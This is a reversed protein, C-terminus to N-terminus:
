IIHRVEHEITWFEYTLEAKSRNAEDLIQKYFDVAEREGKLNVELIEKVTKAPYTKALSMSPVGGLYNGILTRFKEEHKEEDGAIEKLRAIVPEAELGDILEAHSLYQIRAAHELELGRNLMKLLKEKSTEIM